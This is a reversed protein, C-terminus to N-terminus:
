REAEMEKLIEAAEEALEPDECDLVEKLGDIIIEPEHLLIEFLQPEGDGQNGYYDMYEYPNYNYLLKDIRAVLQEITRM